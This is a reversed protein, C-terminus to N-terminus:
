QEDPKKNRGSLGFMDMVFSKFKQSFIFFCVYWLTIAAFDSAPQSLGLKGLGWYSLALVFAAIVVTGPASERGSRNEAFFLILIPIVLLVLNIVGM